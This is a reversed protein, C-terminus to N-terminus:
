LQELAKFDVKALKTKPLADIFRIERPIEYKALYQKYISSLEKKISRESADTKPVVFIVVKEGRLKDERGIAACAEINKCKLTVDEINAPYINYGNSIIMRKLRSRFHVVGREDMYGIDGTRLYKKGGVTIFADATEKPKGLYGKMVSLGRVLIEGDEGLEAEKKTKIDMIIVDNDPLPYGIADPDEAISLPSFIFGGSAETLGYGNEILAKSGHAKLFENIKEKSSMSVMDGGSVVFKVHKLGDKKFKIKTLHEFVTPVGVLINVKYKTIYSKFKKPNFQPILFSRAGFYLPMHICCGLGFAHFNPLFAMFSHDTKFLEPVLYKAGLAQANFNLNSLIIGKPKGTTGGSYMIVADDESNVRAHPNGVYRSAKSLFKDWTIIHQSKNIHNKRGKTLKYVLRVILDMSRTPSVVIVQEVSTNKIITEVKPYSVDVCLIIKSESQNLYDEIEKASSLPHVMNAVAGIENIAYFMYVAEPTNPMCVTIRDGKEAGIVKLAAAVKNIKKIMEKYTIQVDFYELATNHPWKCSAEYIADYLGGNFYEIDKPLKEIYGYKARELRMDIKRLTNKIKKYIYELPM